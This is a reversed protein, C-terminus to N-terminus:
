VNEHQELMAKNLGYGSEDIIEPNPDINDRHSRILNAPSLAGGHHQM